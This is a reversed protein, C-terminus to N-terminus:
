SMLQEVEAIIQSARRHGLREARKLYFLAEKSDSGTKILQVGLNLATSADSSNLEYAKMLSQVSEEDRNLETLACAQQYWGHSGEPFIETIRQFCQLATEPEQAMGYAVGLLNLLSCDNPNSHLNEQIQSIAEGYNGNIILHEMKELFVEAPIEIIDKTPPPVPRLSLNPSSQAKEYLVRELSNTGHIKKIEFLSVPYPINLELLNIYHERREEPCKLGFTVETLPGPWDALGFYPEIYRWEEEYNWCSPKTTIARQFSTDSFAIKYTSTYLRGSKGMSFAMEIQFNETMEPLQDSYVVPLFHMPDALRSGLEKKFGLALGKHEAGYHAWMLQHIPNASLSFIGVDLLQQNLQSFLKDPNAPPYGIFDRMLNERYSFAKSLDDLKRIEELMNQTEDPTLKFFPTREKISRLAEMVFGAMSAEKLEKIKKKLWERGIEQLSCEFPDNLGEATSLYVKGSTIIQETLPSDARYKYYINGIM